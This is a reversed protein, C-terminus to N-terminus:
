DGAIASSSIIPYDADQVPALGDMNAMTRRRLEVRHRSSVGMLDAARWIVNEEFESVGRDAYVLEWMMQVVRRRGQDDLTENLKRTFRYLDVATGAVAEGDSILQAAALDDLGYYSRLSAALKVRRRETLDHHVTAVRILLATVAILRDRGEVDSRQEMGKVLNSVLAKFLDFM